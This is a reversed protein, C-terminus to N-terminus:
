RGRVSSTVLVERCGARRHRWSDKGPQDIDFDHHAHKILSVSLSESRLVPVVREIAPDERKRVMRCFSIKMPPESRARQSEFPTQVWSRQVRLRVPM